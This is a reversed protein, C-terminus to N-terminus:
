KLVLLDSFNSVLLWDIKSNRVHEHVRQIKRNRRALLYVLKTFYNTLYDCWTPLVWVEALNVSTRHLMATAPDTVAAARWVWHDSLLKRFLRPTVGASEAIIGFSSPIATSWVHRKWIKAQPLWHRYAFNPEPCGFGSVRGTFQSFGQWTEWSKPQDGDSQQSFIVSDLPKIFIVHHYHFNNGM